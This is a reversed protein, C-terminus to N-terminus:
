NRDDIIKELKTLRKEHNELHQQVEGENLTWKKSPKQGPFLLEEKSVMGETLEEIKAALARSPMRLGNLIHYILSKSVGLQEALKKVSLSKEFLYRKLDM